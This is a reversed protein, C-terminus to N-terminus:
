YIIFDPLHVYVCRAAARPIGRLSKPSRDFIFACPRRPIHCSAIATDVLALAPPSLAPSSSIPPYNVSTQCDLAGVSAWPTNLSTTLFLKIIIRSSRVQRAAPLARATARRSHSTRVQHGRQEWRAVPAQMAWRRHGSRIARVLGVAYAAGVEPQYRRMYEAVLLARRRALRTGGAVGPGSRTGATSVADAGADTSTRRRARLQHHRVQVPVERRGVEDHTVM